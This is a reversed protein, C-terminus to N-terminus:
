LNVTGLHLIKSPDGIFQRRFDVIALAITKFDRVKAKQFQAVMLRLENNFQKK